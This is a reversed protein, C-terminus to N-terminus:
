PRHDGPRPTEASRRSSRNRRCRSRSTSCTASRSEESARSCRPSCRSGERQYEILPRAAGDPACLRSGEQLYDMEYLHERWKRDLVVPHRAAGARAHGESLSSRRAGPRLRRPRRRSRENLLAAVLEERGGAEKASTRPAQPLDPLARRRAKWM